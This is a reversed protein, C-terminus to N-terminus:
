AVPLNEYENHMFLRLVQLGDLFLRPSKCMALECTDEFTSEVVSASAGRYWCLESNNRSVSTFYLMTSQGATETSLNSSRRQVRWHTDLECGLSFESGFADVAELNQNALQLYRQLLNDVCPKSLTHTAVRGDIQSVSIITDDRASTCAEIIDTNRSAIWGPHIGALSFAKSM